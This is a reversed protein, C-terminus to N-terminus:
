TRDEGYKTRTLCQGVSVQCHQVAFATQLCSDLAADLSGLLEPVDHLARHTSIIFAEKDRTAKAWAALRQTVDKDLLVAPLKLYSQVCTDFLDQLKEKNGKFKESM